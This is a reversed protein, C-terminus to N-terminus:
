EELQRRSPMEPEGIAEVDEFRVYAGLRVEANVGLRYLEPYPNRAPIRKDTILARIDKQEGVVKEAGVEGLLREISKEIRPREAEMTKWDELAALLVGYVQLKGEAFTQLRRMAWYTKWDLAYEAVHADVGLKAIEDGCELLKSEGYRAIQEIEKVDFGQAELLLGMSKDVCARVHVVTRMFSTAIDAKRKVVEQNRWSVYGAAALIVAAVASCGSLYGPLGNGMMFQRRRTRREEPTKRDRSRWKRGLFRVLMLLGYGVLFLASVRAAWLIGEITPPDYRPWSPVWFMVQIAIFM